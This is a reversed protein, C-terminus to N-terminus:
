KRELSSKGCAKHTISSLQRLLDNFNKALIVDDEREAISKLESEVVKNGIGVAIVRVGQKRLRGSATKLSEGVNKTQEGDTLLLAIKRIGPRAKPFVDLAATKLGKDIRTRSGLQHRLHDVEFDFERLTPYDGFNAEVKADDSFVVLAGQSHDPSIGLAEAAQEVFNKEKAFNDYSISRSSDIIFVM